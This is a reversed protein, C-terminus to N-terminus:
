LIGYTTFAEKASMGNEIAGTFVETEAERPVVCVGDIDGFVIDGPKIRAGDIELTVRYDIVRGRPAQDQAYPGFSFTSFGLAQIGKTDRSYGNMVAGAAGSKLARTSMLEGWLAYQPSGGTCMYVENPKLDDLADLMLGFPQSLAPNASQVAEDAAYDAELVTMARGIIDGVVAVFLEAKALTFLDEDPSWLSTM